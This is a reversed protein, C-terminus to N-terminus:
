AFLCEAYPPAPHPPPSPDDLFETLCCPHNGSDQHAHGPYPFARTDTPAHPQQPQLYAPAMCSYSSLETRSWTAIARPSHICAFWVRWLGVEPVSISSCSMWGEARPHELTGRHVWGPEGSFSLCSFKACESM